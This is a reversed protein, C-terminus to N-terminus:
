LASICELDLKYSGAKGRDATQRSTASRPCVLRVRTQRRNSWCRVYIPAPASCIRLSQGLHSMSRAM